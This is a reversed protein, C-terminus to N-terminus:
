RCCCALLLLRAVSCGSVTTISVDQELAGVGNVVVVTVKEDVTALGNSVIEEEEDVAVPAM